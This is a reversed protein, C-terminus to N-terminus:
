LRSIRAAEACRGVPQRGAQTGLIGVIGCMRRPGGGHFNSNHQLPRPLLASILGTEGYTLSMLQSFGVFPKVAPIATPTQGDVKAKKMKNYLERLRAAGGEKNVQQGRAIALADAPVDKTVVSGSGM